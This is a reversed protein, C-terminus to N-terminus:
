APPVSCPVSPARPHHASRAASTLDVAYFVADEACGPTVLECGSEFDERRYCHLWGDTYARIEIRATVVRLISRTVWLSPYM